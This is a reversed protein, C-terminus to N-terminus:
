ADATPGHQREIPRLRHEGCPTEVEAVIPWRGSGGDPDRFPPLRKCVGAVPESDAPDVNLEFFRCNGCRPERAM